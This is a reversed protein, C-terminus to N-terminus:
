KNYFPNKYLIAKQKKDLKTQPTYIGGYSDIFLAPYHKFMKLLKIAEQPIETEIKNDSEKEKNEEIKEESQITSATEQEEGETEKTQSVEEQNTEKINNVTEQVDQENVAEPQVVEKTQKVRAM